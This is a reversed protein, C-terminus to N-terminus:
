FNRRKPHAGLRSTRPSHLPRTVVLHQGEPGHRGQPGPAPWVGRGAGRAAPVPVSVPLGRRQSVSSAASPPPRGLVASSPPGVPGSEGHNRPTWCVRCRRVVERGLGSSLSAPLLLSRFHRWVSQRLPRLGPRRAARGPVARPPLSPVANSPLGATRFLQGDRQLPPAEAPAGSGNSAGAPSWSPSPQLNQTLGPPKSYFEGLHSPRQATPTAMAVSNKRARKIKKKYKVKLFPQKLTSCTCFKFHQISIYYLHPLCTATLSGSTATGSLWQNVECPVGGGGRELDALKAILTMIEQGLLKGGSKNAQQAALLALKPEIVSIISFM